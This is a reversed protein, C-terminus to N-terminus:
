LEDAADSTYLLCGWFLYLWFASTKLMQLPSSGRAALDEAGSLSPPLKEPFCLAGLFLILTILIITVRFVPFLGFLASTKEIIVGLFLSGFGFGTLLVGSVAGGNKPFLVGVGSIIVNYGIGAGIGCILGYSIYVVLLASYSPMSGVCSFLMGGALICSAGIWLAYRKGLWGSLKGGLFGATCFFMIFLTFTLSCNASTWDPFLIVLQLRFLSWAYFVGLFLMMVFGIVATIMRNPLKM